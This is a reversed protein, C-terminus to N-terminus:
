GPPSWYRYRHSERLGQAANLALSAANTASVQSFKWRAGRALGWAAAAGMLRRALGRRRAEPRVALDFMGCLPGDAAVFICAADELLLWTAPISLLAAGEAKERRRAETQYDASGVVAMWRRDPAALAEVASDPRAMPALAGCLVLSEDFPRWGAAAAAAELGPPDLPLSRWRPRLGRAGHFAAIRALLAAPDAVPDPALAQACNARGTGGHFARLVLPGHFQILPAPVANLTAREIEAITPPM